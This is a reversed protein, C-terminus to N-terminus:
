LLATGDPLTLTLMIPEYNEVLADPFDHNLDWFALCQFVAGQHL